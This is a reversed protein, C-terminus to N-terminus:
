KVRTAYGSSRPSFCDGEPQSFYAAKLGNLDHFVNTLISDKPEDRSELFDIMAELDAQQTQSMANTLTCGVDVKDIQWDAKKALDFIKNMLSLM